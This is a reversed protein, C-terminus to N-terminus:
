LWKIKTENGQTGNAQPIVNGSFAVILFESLEILNPDCTVQQKAKNGHQNDQFGEAFEM